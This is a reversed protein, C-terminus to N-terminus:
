PVVEEPEEITIVQEARPARLGMVEAKVAARPVATMRAQEQRMETRENELKRSRELEVWIARRLALTRQTNWVHFIGAATLVMMAATIALVARGNGTRRVTTRPKAM